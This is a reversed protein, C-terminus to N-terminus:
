AALHPPPPPSVMPTEVFQPCIAVLKLQQAQWLKPAMSRVFHVVGAKSAAYVPLAEMPFIGPRPCICWPHAHTWKFDVRNLTLGTSM